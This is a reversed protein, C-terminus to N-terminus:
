ISDDLDVDEVSVFTRIGVSGTINGQVAAVINNINVISSLYEFHVSDVISKIFAGPYIEAGQISTRDSRRIRDGVVTITADATYTGSIDECDLYASTNAITRPPVNVMFEGGYSKTLESGWEEDRGLETSLELDTEGVMPVSITASASMGVSKSLSLSYSSTFEGSYSVTQEIGCKKSLNRISGSTSFDHSAQPQSVTTSVFNLLQVKLKYSIPTIEWKFDTEANGTALASMSLAHSSNHRLYRTSNFVKLKYVNDADGASRILSWQMANTPPETYAKTLVNTQTSNDRGDLYRKSEVCCLTYSVGGSVESLWWQIPGHIEPDHNNSLIPDTTATALDRGDLYWDTTPMRIAYKVGTFVKGDTGEVSRIDVFDAANSTATSCCVAVILKWFLKMM